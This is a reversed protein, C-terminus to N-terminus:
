LGRAEPNSRVARTPSSSHVPNNLDFGPLSVPHPDPELVAHGSLYVQRVQHPFPNKPVPLIRFLEPLHEDVLFSTGNGPGPVHIESWYAAATFLGFAM